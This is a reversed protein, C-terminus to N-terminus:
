VASTSALRVLVIAPVTLATFMVTPSCSPVLPPPPVVRVPEPVPEPAEDEATPLPLPPLPPWPAFLPDPL